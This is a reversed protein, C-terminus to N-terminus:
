FELGIKGGINKLEKKTIELSYIYETKSIVEGNELYIKIDINWFKGYKYESFISTIKEVENLNWKKLYSKEQEKLISKLMLNQLDQNNYKSLMKSINKKVEEKRKENELKEREKEIEQKKKEIFLPSDKEVTWSGYIEEESGNKLIYFVDVYGYNEFMAGNKPKFVLSEYIKDKNPESLLGIGLDSEIKYKLSSLSTTSLKNSKAYELLNELKKSQTKIFEKKKQRELKIESIKSDMKEIPIVFNIAKTSGSLSFSLDNSGFKNSIRVSVKSASKLKNIFEYKSVKDDSNPDNFEIFFIIKGDSSFSFDYTSYIIKLEDFLKRTM